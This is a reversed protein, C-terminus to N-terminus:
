ATESEEIGLSEKHLRSLAIRVRQIALDIPVIFPGLDKTLRQGLANFLERVIPLLIASGLLLELLLFQLLLLVFVNDGVRRVVINVNHLGCRACGGGRPPFLFRRRLRRSLCQPHPTSSADVQKRMKCKGDQVFEGLM